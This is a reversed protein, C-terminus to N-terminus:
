RPINRSPLVRYYVQLMFFLGTLYLINLMGSFVAVGIYSSRCSALAAALESRADM